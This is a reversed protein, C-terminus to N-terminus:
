LRRIHEALEPHGAEKIANYVTVRDNRVSRKMYETLLILLKQRFAVAQDRIEQPATDSVHLIKDACQEALEEPTLGRNDTTIVKFNLANM